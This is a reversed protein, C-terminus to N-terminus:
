KKCLVNGWMTSHRHISVEIVSMVATNHTYFISLALSVTESILPASGASNSFKHMSCLGFRNMHFVNTNHSKFYLSQWITNTMMLEKVANIGIDYNKNTTNQLSLRKSNIVTSIRFRPCWCKMISRQHKMTLFIKPTTFAVSHKRLTLYIM